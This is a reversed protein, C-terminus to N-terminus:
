RKQKRASSPISVEVKQGPPNLVINSYEVLQYNGSPQFFQQQIPSSAGEPIWVLVKSIKEKVEATKPILLLRTTARSGLKDTGESTIDYNSSLETGSSGFGLLLFQNLLNGKKGTDVETFENLKPYYIRVTKNQFTLIRADNGGSFDVVARTDKKTKQMRMTGSEDTHDDLIKTFTTMKLNATVGTFKPAEANMRSLIGNLEEAHIGFSM